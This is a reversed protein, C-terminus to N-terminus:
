DLRGQIVYPVNLIIIVKEFGAAKIQEVIQKEVDSLQFQGPADEYDSGESSMRAITFIATDAAAAPRRWM